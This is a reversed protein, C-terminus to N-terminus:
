GKNWARFLVIIVAILMVIGVLGILSSIIGGSFISIAVFIIGLIGILLEGRIVSVEHGLADIEKQILKNKQSAKNREYRFIIVQANCLPTYLKPTYSSGYALASNSLFTEEGTLDLRQKAHESFEQVLKSILTAYKNKKEKLKKVFYKMIAIDKDYKEKVNPRMVKVYVEEGNVLKARHTQTTITSETPKHQISRIVTTVPRSYVESLYDKVTITPLPKDHDQLGLLAKCVEGPVLDPRYSLWRGFLVFWGGAEQLAHKLREQPSAKYNERHHRPKLLQGFGYKEFAAVVEKFRPSSQFASTTM